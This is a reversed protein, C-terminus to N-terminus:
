ELEDLTLSFAPAFNELFYEAEPLNMAKIAALTQSEAKEFDRNGACREEICKLYASLKDAAKVIQHIEADKEEEL